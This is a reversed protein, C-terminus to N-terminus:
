DNSVWTKVVQAVLKPDQRTVDRVLTINQEYAGPGALKVAQGKESTLTLQDEALGDGSGGRGAAVMGGGTRAPVTMLHRLLPRMVGFVVALVAVIGGGIKAYDQVWAKEWVPQAPTVVAPPVAFSANMVNVTDGRQVSYGVAEKVLATLREVDTDSWPQRTVEGDEGAVRKDDVVVAISLRKVVGSALKTHSITRDLEYNVTSNRRSRLPKDDSGGAAQAGAREPANGAGPPQNSLAGPVGEPANGYSSEESIQESRVSPLDPNYTELTKETVTFDMEAAVQARVSEIGVVPALIDEIRRTYNDEIRRTYDFQESSAEVEPSRKKGSLLRGRQDVVTVQEPELEPISSAVMHTIAAIQGEELVRGAYLNVLISASPKQKQRVFVSQKPLALHVRASEVSSITMVSRALEQELAHQYRSAQIFQSTGFDQKQQLFELGQNSSKPYGESALRLRIEHVNGAPVLLAGTREDLKYEIGKQQLLQAVEAAEKDGLTGFLVGYNPQTMWLLATGGLAISAAMVFIFGIQRGTLLNVFGEWRQGESKVMEM